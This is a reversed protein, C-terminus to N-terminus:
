KIRRLRRLKENTDTVWAIWHVPFNNGRQVEWAWADTDICTGDINWFHNVLARAVSALSNPATYRTASGFKGEYLFRNFRRNPGGNGTIAVANAIEYGGSGTPVQTITGSSIFIWSLGTRQELQWSDFSTVAPDYFPAMRLFLREGLTSVGAPSFGTRPVTDFGSPDASASCELYSQKKHQLRDVTYKFIVRYPATIPTPGSM